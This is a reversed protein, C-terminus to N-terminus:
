VLWFAYANISNISLDALRWRSVARKEPIKKRRRCPICKAYELKSSLASTMFNSAVFQDISKIWCHILCFVRLQLIRIKNGDFMHLNMQVSKIWLLLRYRFLLECCIGFTWDRKDFRIIVSKIRDKIANIKMNKEMYLVFLNNFCPM